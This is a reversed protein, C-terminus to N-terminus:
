LSCAKSSGLDCNYFFFAHMLFPIFWLSFFSLPNLTASLVQIVRPERPKSGLFTYKRLSSVIANQFASKQKKSDKNQNDLVHIKKIDKKLQWYDVFAEKWEPVLQGEFQKSFKVM